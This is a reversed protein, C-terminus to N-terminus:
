SPNIKKKQYQTTHIGAVPDQIFLFIIPAPALCESSNLGFVPRLEGHGGVRGYVKEMWEEVFSYEM